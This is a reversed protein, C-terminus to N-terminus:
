KKSRLDEEWGRVVRGVAPGAVPHTESRRGWFGHQAKLDLFLISWRTGWPEGLQERMRCIVWYSVGGGARMNAPALCSFPNSFATAGGGCGNEEARPNSIFIGM